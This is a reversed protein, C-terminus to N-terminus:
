LELTAGQKAISLRPRELAALERKIIDEYMPKIHYVYIACDRELKALDRKLLQATMHGSLVALDEFENPFSCDVIIAKLNAQANALEWIRDSNCTDATYLFSSDTLTSEILYGHCPVVHNVPIPTINLHRIRLTQEAALTSFTITPSDPSPLVSFDPWLVDNFMYKRLADLVERSAWVRLPESTEGFLNDALFPLSLTHDLHSHSVFVDSILFQRELSLSQTLCGADIALFDDVFFSTLNTTNTSGGYAGLLEVKM